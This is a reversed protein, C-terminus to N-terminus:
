PRTSKRNSGGRRKSRPTWRKVGEPRTRGATRRAEEPAAPRARNRGDPRTPRAKIAASKVSWRATRPDPVFLERAVLFPKECAWYLALASALSLGLFGTWYVTVSGGLKGALALSLPLLPYHILYLAYALRAGIRVAAAGPLRVESLGAAGALALACLAAILLPQAVIDFTTIEGMLEHSASLAALAVAAGGLMWRGLRQTPRFLGAAELVAVGMGLVLPEGAAHLPQRFVTWFTEYDDPVGTAAGIGARTATSALVLAGLVALLTNPSRMRTALAIVLPALLYFKVEVALSWFVPNIDSALYDQLMLAHYALRWGLDELSLAYLPFVGSVTALLVAYYAPAIRLLRRAIYAPVRRALKAPDHRLLMRAILYGSLVFFLDVGIWGNLLVHDTWHTPAAGTTEVWQRHGHRALVLGIATCRLLDLWPNDDPRTEIRRAFVM